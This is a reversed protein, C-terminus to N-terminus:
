TCPVTILGKENLIHNSIQSAVQFSGQQNLHIGDFFDKDELDLNLVKLGYKQGIDFIVKNFECVLTNMDFNYPYKLGKRFEPISILVGNAHKCLLLIKLVTLDYAIRFEPLPTSKKVDNTGILLTFFSIDHISITQSDATIKRQLDCATFGSVAINLVNWSNGIEEQLHSSIYEPYGLYSRAGITISDGFCALTEWNM